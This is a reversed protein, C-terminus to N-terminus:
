DQRRRQRKRKDLNPNQYTIKLTNLRQLKALNHAIFGAVKNRTIKSDFTMVGDLNEKNKIFDISFKEPYLEILKESAIKIHTTKVNGM